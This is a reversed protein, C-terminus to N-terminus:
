SAVPYNIFIANQLPRQHPLQPPTQTSDASRNRQRMIGACVTTHYFTKASRQRFACIKALKPTRVNSAVLNNTPYSLKKSCSKAAPLRPVVV